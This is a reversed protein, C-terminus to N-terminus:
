SGGGGRGRGRAGALEGLEPSCYAARAGPAVNCFYFDEWPREHLLAVGITYHNQQKKYIAYFIVSFKSFHSVLKTPYLHNKKSFINITKLGVQACQRIICFYVDQSNIMIKPNVSTIISSKHM